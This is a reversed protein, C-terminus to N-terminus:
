DYIIYGLGKKNVIVDAGIKKRLNKLLSRLADDSMAEGNYVSEQIDCVSLIEGRNALLEEILLSEKKNLSIFNSKNQIRKDKYHYIIDDNIKIKDDLNPKLAIKLADFLTNKDFPKTLFKTIFLEVAKLLYDTKTHATIIVVPTKLDKNRIIKLADLGNLNPMCIDILMIDPSNLRYLNLLELGDKAVFVEKFYLRLLSSVNKSIGDEDEAYLITFDSFDM